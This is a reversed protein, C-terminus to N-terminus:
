DRKSSLDFIIQGKMTEFRNSSIPFNTKYFGGQKKTRIVQMHIKDSQGKIFFKIYYNEKNDNIIINPNILAQIARGLGLIRTKDKQHDIHSFNRRYIRVTEIPTKFIAPEKGEIGLFKAIDEESKGNFDPPFKDVLGLNKHKQLTAKYNRYKPKLNGNGKTFQGAGEQGKPVRKHKSEFEVDNFISKIEKLLKIDTDSFSNQCKIVDILSQLIETNNM